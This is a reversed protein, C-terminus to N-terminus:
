NFNNSHGQSCVLPWAINGLRYFLVGLLPISLTGLALLSMTYYYIYLKTFAVEQVLRGQMPAESCPPDWTRQLAEGPDIPNPARGLRASPQPDQPCDATFIIREILAAAAMKKGKDQPIQARSEFLTQSMCLFIGARWARGEAHNELYPNSDSLLICAHNPCEPGSLESGRQPRLKGM